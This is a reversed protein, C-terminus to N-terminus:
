LTEKMDENLLSSNEDIRIRAIGAAPSTANSGGGQGKKGMGKGKGKKNKGNGKGKLADLHAAASTIAALQQRDGEEGEEDYDQSREEAWEGNNDWHDAPSGEDCWKVYETHEHIESVASFDMPSAKSRHEIIKLKEIMKRIYEFDTKVTVQKM